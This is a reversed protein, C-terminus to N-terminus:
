LPIRKSGGFEAHGIEVQDATVKCFRRGVDARAAGVGVMRWDAGLFPAVEAAFVMDSVARERVPALVEDLRADTTPPAEPAPPEPPVLPPEGGSGLGGREETV